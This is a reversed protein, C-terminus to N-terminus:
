PRTYHGRRPQRDTRVRPPPRREDPGTRRTARRTSKAWPDSGSARDPRRRRWCRRGCPTRRRGPRDGGSAGCASRRRARQALDVVVARGRLTTSTLAVRDQQDGRQGRRREAEVQAAAARQDLVEHAGPPRRVEHLVALDGELVAVEAHLVPDVLDDRGRDALHRRVGAAPGHVDIPQLRPPMKASSVAASWGSRGIAETVTTPEGTSVLCTGSTAGSRGSSLRVSPRPAM